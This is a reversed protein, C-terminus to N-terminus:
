GGARFERGTSARWLRRPVSIHPHSEWKQQQWQAAFAKNVTAYFRRTPEYSANLLTIEACVASTLVFLCFPGAALAVCLRKHM